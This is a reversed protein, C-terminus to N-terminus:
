GGSTNVHGVSDSLRWCLVLRKTVNLAEFSVDNNSTSQVSLDQSQSVHAHVEIGFELLGCRGRMNPNAM